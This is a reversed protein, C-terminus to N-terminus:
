VPNVIYGERWIGDVLSPPAGALSYHHQDGSLIGLGGLGAVIAQLQDHTPATGAGSVLRSNTLNQLCSFIDNPRAKSKAPLSKLRLSRWASLPFTEAVAQDGPRWTGPNFRQWGRADLANFVDISFEIFPRYNAPKTDGPLGTKGPTNLKRECIRSHTLGNMPDKWGQPGDLLILSANFRRAAGIAIDAVNDPTPAPTDALALV